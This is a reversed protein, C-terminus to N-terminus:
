LEMASGQRSMDLISQSRPTDMDVDIPTAVDPTQTATEETDMDSQTIDVSMDDPSKNLRSSWRTPAPRVPSPPRSEKNDDDRYEDDEDEDIGYIDDDFTYQVKKAREGRSRLQTKTISIEVPILKRLEAREKRLRKQVEKDALEYLEETIVKILAKENRSSPSLTAVLSELDQRNKCITEWNFTAKNTHTRWVWCSDGFQWYTRKKTDTGLPYSKIPNFKNRSSTNANNIEIISKVAQSDQLQWEIM